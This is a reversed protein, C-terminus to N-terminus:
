DNQRLGRVIIAGDWGCYYGVSVFLSDMFDGSNLYVLGCDFQDNLSPFVNFEIGNFHFLGDPAFVICDQPHNCSLDNISMGSFEPYEYFTIANEDNIESSLFNFRGIGVESVFLAYMGTLEFAYIFGYNDDPILSDASYILEWGGDEFHYIRNGLWGSMSVASVFLGGNLDRSGQIDVVEIDLNLSIDELGSGNYHFISGHDGAFYVSSSDEIWIDRITASFDWGDTVNYHTWTEGDFHYAAAEGGAWIDNGLKDISYLRHILDYNGTVQSFSYGTDSYHVLNFFNLSTDTEVKGVAWFEDGDIVVDDLLSGPTGFTDYTITFESSSLNQCCSSLDDECLYEDNQCEIDNSLVINVIIIIDQVNISDDNNVDSAWLEYETPDEDHQLIINIIQVVDLININGDNNVDGLADRQDSSLLTITLLFLSLISIAIRNKM